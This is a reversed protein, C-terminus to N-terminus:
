PPCPQRRSARSKSQKHGNPQTSYLKSGNCRCPAGRIVGVKEHECCALTNLVDRLGGRGWPIRPVLPPPQTWTEEVVVVLTCTEGVEVVLTSHSPQSVQLWELVRPPQRQHGSTTAAEEGEQLIARTLHRKITFQKVLM